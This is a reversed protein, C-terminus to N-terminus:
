PERIGGLSDYKTDVRVDIADKDEKAVEQKAQKLKTSDLPTGSKVPPDPLPAPRTFEFKPIIETTSHANVKFEDLLIDTDATITAEKPVVKNHWTVSVGKPVKINKQDGYWDVRAQRAM